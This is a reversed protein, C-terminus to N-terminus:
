HKERAFEVDHAVRRRGTTRGGDRLLVCAPEGRMVVLIEIDDRPKQGLSQVLMEVINVGVAPPGVIQAVFHGIRHSGNLEEIPPLTFEVEAIFALRRMGHEERQAM